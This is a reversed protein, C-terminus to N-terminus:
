IPQVGTNKLIAGIKIEILRSPNIVFFAYLHWKNFKIGWMRRVEM